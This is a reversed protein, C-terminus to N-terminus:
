RVTPGMFAAIRREEYSGSLGLAPHERPVVLVVMVCPDPRDRRVLDVEPLGFCDIGRSMGCQINREEGRRFAEHAFWWFWRLDRGGDPDVWWLWGFFDLGLPTQHRLPCFEVGLIQFGFRVYGHALNKITFRTFICLIPTTAPITRLRISLNSTGKLISLTGCLNM